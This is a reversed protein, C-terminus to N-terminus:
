LIVIVAKVTSVEEAFPFAKIVTSTIANCSSRVQRLTSSSCPQTIADTTSTTTTLSRTTFHVLGTIIATDANYFSPLQCKAATSAFIIYQSLM